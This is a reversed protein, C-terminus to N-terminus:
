TSQMYMCVYWVDDDDDYLMVHYAVLAKTVRFQLTHM